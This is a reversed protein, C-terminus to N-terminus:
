PRVGLKGYFNGAKTHVKKHGREELKRSLAIASMPKLGAGESWAKYNLYLKAASAAHGTITCREKIWQGLLDMEDRYAAVADEVVKPTALGSKQWALCGKIAWNLIGPLEALLKDKLYPDKAKGDIKATFPILRVRRWIGNDTGRIQPKSNGAIFLKLKPVFSFYEHYLYRAKIADGGTIHKLLNEEFRQDGDLETTDVFRAGQLSAEDNSSSRSARQLMLTEPRVSRALDGGLLSRLVSIFTSKGNSGDGHLFFFVQESTSGTLCYGVVRQLYAILQRDGQAVEKVFRIFRPAKAKKDFVVPASMTIFMERTYPQLKGTRLDIVGNKVGLLWDDHNLESSHVMLQPITKASEIMAKLKPVNHSNNAHLSVARRRADDKEQAAETFIASATLKALEMVTASDGVAWTTGSWVIWKGLDGVYRIKDGHQLSLRHGNGTDNLGLATATLLPQAPYRSYISDLVKQVEDDDLPKDFRNANEDELVLLAVQPSIDQRRLVGAIHTLHNNRGGQEVKVAPSATTPTLSSSVSQPRRRSSRGGSLLPSSIKPIGLGKMLSDSTYPVPPSSTNHM